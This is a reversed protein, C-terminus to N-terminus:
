RQGYLPQLDKLVEPKIIPSLAGETVLDVDVALTKSLDEELDIVDFYGKPEGFKVLLDMDSDPREEGRARSGFLGAFTVGHKRLIPEIKKIIEDKAM